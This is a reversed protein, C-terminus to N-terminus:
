PLELSDGLNRANSELRDELSTRWKEPDLRPILDKGRKRTEYKKEAIYEVLAIHWKISEEVKDTRFVLRHLAELNPLNGLNHQCRNVAEGFSQQFEPERGSSRIVLGGDKPSVQCGETRKELALFDLFKTDIAGIEKKLSSTWSELNDMSIEKRSYEEVIKAIEGAKKHLMRAKEQAAAESSQIELSSYKGLPKLEIAQGKTYEQRPRLWPPMGSRGRGSSSTKTEKRRFFEM